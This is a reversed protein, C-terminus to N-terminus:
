TEVQVRGKERERKRERKRGRGTMTGNDIIFAGARERYRFIDTEYLYRRNKKLLHGRAPNFFFFINEM